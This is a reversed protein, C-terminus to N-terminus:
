VVAGDGGGGGGQQEQMVDIVDGDDIELSQPTDDERVRQGDFLFRVSASRVGANACWSNMLKSLPTTPKLKFFRHNGDQAVVKITLPSSAGGADTPKTEDGETQQTHTDSM